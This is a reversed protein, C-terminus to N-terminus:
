RVDGNVYRWIGDERRFRSVEHLRFRGEAGTGVAVFEVTGADQLYSDHPIRKETM